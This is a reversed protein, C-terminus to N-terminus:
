ADLAIERVLPALKSDARYVEYFQKMRWLNSASFGKLEPAEAALWSALEQVAGRGWGAEEVKVSLYEGVARYTDILAINVAEFAKARGSHIIRLIEAFEVSHKVPELNM